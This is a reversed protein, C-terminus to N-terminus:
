RFSGLRFSFPFLNSVREMTSIIDSDSISPSCLEGVILEMKSNLKIQYTSLESPSPLTKVYTNLVCRFIM